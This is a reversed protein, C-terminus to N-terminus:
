LELADLQRLAQEFRRAVVGRELHDLCEVDAGRLRYVVGVAGGKTLFTHDDVFGWFPLLSSLSGTEAYDKLLRRINIM